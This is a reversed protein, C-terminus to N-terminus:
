VSIKALERRAFIAVGLLSILGAKIVVMFVFLRGVVPWSILRASVLEDTPSFKDFQPLLHVLPRLTLSYFLGWGETLSDISDLFFGSISAAFYVFCCVLIAVPFSLWTSASIGLAALFVLRAFIMLVARIFNPTFEDAKYLLELDKLPFIVSTNNQPPNEFTVCVYGDSAVADAPVVIEHVTRVIEDRQVTYVPTELKNGFRYQRDDGIYWHGTVKLDPPNTAVEYKYRVFLFEDNSRPAVNTFEWRVQHGPAAARTKLKKQAILERLIEEGTMGAPLQDTKALREYEERAERALRQEDIVPNAAARATFFENELQTNQQRGADLVYPVGRTLGYILGAFGVLLVADLLLVGLLKGCLYQYRRIPKTLVTYVQRQQQDVAITYTSVIITLVALLFATLSFAYSIFTQLKGKITGDGSMVVSMVPLLILLLVIFIVAVRLRIAQAITNRAVARISRM